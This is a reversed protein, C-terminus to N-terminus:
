GGCVAPSSRPDPDGARQSSKGRFERTQSDLGFRSCEQEAPRPAHFQAMTAPGSLGSYAVTWTLVRTAPDYTLDAMGAGAAFVPPVEQGGSIPVKFSIPEAQVLGPWAVWTPLVTAMIVLARRSLVNNM